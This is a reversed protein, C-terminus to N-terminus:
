CALPRGQVHSIPDYTVISNDLFDASSCHALNEAGPIFPQPTIDSKLEDTRSGAVIRIMDATKFQLGAGGCSQIM